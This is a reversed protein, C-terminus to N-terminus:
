LAQVGIVPLPCIDADDWRRSCDACLQAHIRALRRLDLGTQSLGVNYKGFNDPGIEGCLEDAYLLWKQSKMCENM